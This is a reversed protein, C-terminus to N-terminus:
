FVVPHKLVKSLEFEYFISSKEVDFHFNIMLSSGDIFAHFAFSGYGSIGNGNMNCLSLATDSM